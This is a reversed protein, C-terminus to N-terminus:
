DMVFNGKKCVLSDHVTNYIGTDGNYIVVTRIDLSFVPKLFFFFRVSREMDSRHIGRPSQLILPYTIYYM